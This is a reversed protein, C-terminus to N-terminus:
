LSFKPMSVVDMSVLTEAANTASGPCVIEVTDDSDSLHSHCGVICVKSSGCSIAPLLQTNVVTKQLLLARVALCAGISLTSWAAIQRHAGGRTTSTRPSCRSRWVHYRVLRWLQDRELSSQASSEEHLESCQIPYLPRVFEVREERYRFITRRRWLCVSRRIVAHDLHQGECEYRSYM